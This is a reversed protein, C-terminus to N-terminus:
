GLALVTSEVEIREIALDADPRSEADSAVPLIQDSAEVETHFHIIRATALLPDERVAEVLYPPVDTESM